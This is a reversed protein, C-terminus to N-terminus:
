DLFAASPSGTCVNNDARCAKVVTSKCMKKCKRRAKGKSANCNEAIACAKIENKCGKTKNRGPSCKNKALGPAAAFGVVFLAAVVISIVKTRIM